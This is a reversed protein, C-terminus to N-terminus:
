LWNPPAQLLRRAFEADLPPSFFYGQGFECGLTKLYQLQSSTEIGEAIAQIELSDLLAIIVRIIETNQGDNQIHSVFSRDIKLTNVPLLHLYSLSSYGTGFDDISLYIKRSKLEELISATIKANGMIGSETM